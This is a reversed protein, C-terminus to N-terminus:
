TGKDQGCLMVEQQIVLVVGLIFILYRLPLNVIITFFVTASFTFSAM